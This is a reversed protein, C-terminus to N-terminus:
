VRERWSARGIEEKRAEEESISGALERSFLEELWEEDTMSVDKEKYSKLNKQFIEKVLRAEEETIYETEQIKEAM